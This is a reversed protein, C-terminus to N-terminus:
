EGARKVDANKVGWADSKHIWLRNSISVWWVCVSVCWPFKRAKKGKHSLSLILSSIVKAYLLWNTVWQIAYYWQVFTANMWFIWVVIVGLRSFFYFYLFITKLFMWTFLYFHSLSLALSFLSLFLIRQTDSIMLSKGLIYRLVKNSYISHQSGWFFFSNDLACVIGNKNAM